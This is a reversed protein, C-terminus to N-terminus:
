LLDADERKGIQNKVNIIDVKSVNKMGIVLDIEEKYIRPYGM